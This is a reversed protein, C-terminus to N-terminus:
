MMIMLVALIGLPMMVYRRLTLFDWAVTFTPSHSGTPAAMRPGRHSDSDAVPGVAPIFVLITALNRLRSDSDFDVVWVAILVLFPDTYLNHSHNADPL